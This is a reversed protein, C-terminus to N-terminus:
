LKHNFIILSFFTFGYLDTIYLKKMEQLFSQLPFKLKLKKLFKRSLFYSELKKSPNTRSLAMNFNTMWVIFFVHLNARHV